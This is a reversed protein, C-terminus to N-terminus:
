YIENIILYEIYLPIIKLDIFVLKIISRGLLHIFLWIRNDRVFKVEFNLFSSMFIVIDHVISFFESNGRCKM